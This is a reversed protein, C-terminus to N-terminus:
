GLTALIDDPIDANTYVKQVDDSDELADILNMLKRADNADLTVTNGPIKTIEADTIDLGAKEIADKVTAFDIPSTEIIWVGPDDEDIPEPPQVDDAGAELAVEMVQEESLSGSVRIHGKTEFMYSVCGTAGLNGGHKTFTSRVEPATRNRNDTLADAIVAVGNPGYGEYSVAEFADGGVSGAGKDVARQITDKPMNAYKAEDIAYRLTLNSTPDGGGTRAAAIIARSCKSWIKGRKKDQRDKRHRINAWKSHGAM